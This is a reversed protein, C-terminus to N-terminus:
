GRWCRRSVGRLTVARGKVGGRPKLLGQNILPEPMFNILLTFVRKNGLIGEEPLFLGPNEFGDTKDIGDSDNVM